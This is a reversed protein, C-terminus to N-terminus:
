RRYPSFVQRSLQAETSTELIPHDAFRWLATFAYTEGPKMIVRRDTHRTQGYPNPTTSISVVHEGPRIVAAYGVNRGLITIPVGDISLKLYIFTGFDSERFIFLRANGGISEDKAYGSWEARADSTLSVVFCCAVVTALFKSIALRSMKM